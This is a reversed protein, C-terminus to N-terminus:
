GAAHGVYTYVTLIVWGVVCLAILALMLVCGIPVPGHM